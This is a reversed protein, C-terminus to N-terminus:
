EEIETKIKLLNDYSRKISEYPADTKQEIVLYECGTGRVARLVGGFDIVGDGVATDRPLVSILRKKFALDRM